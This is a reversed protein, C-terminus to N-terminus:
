EGTILSIRPVDKLKEYCERCFKTSNFGIVGSNQCYQRLIVKLDKARNQGKKPNYFFKSGDSSLTIFDMNSIDAEETSGGALYVQVIDDENNFSSMISRLHKYSRPAVKIDKFTECLPEDDVVPDVKTYLGIL